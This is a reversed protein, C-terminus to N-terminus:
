CVAHPRWVVERHATSGHRRRADIAGMALYALCLSVERHPQPHLAIALSQFIGDAILDQPCTEFFVEFPCGGSAPDNEHLMLINSGTKCALRLENALTEGDGGVFTSLNLLLLLHTMDDDLHRLVKLSASGAVMHRQFGDLLARSAEAAGPNHPSRSLVVPTPLQLRRRGIEGPVYLALTPGARHYEPSALLLQEALLSLSSNSTLSAIGNSSPARSEPASGGPARTGGM